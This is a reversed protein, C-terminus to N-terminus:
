GPALAVLCIWRTRSRRSLPARTISIITATFLVVAATLLITWFAIGTLTTDVDAAATHINGTHSTM